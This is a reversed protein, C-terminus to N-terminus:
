DQDTGQHEPETLLLMLCVRAALNRGLLRVRASPIRPASRPASFAPPETSLGASNALKASGTPSLAVRSTAVILMAPSVMTKDKPNCPCFFGVYTFKLERFPSLRRPQAGRDGM